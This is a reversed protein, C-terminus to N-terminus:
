SVMFSPGTACHPRFRLSFRIRTSVSFNSVLSFPMKAMPSMLQYGPLSVSIRDPKWSAARIAWAAWLITCGSLFSRNWYVVEDELRCFFSPTFYARESIAAERPARAHLEHLSAYIGVVQTPIVNRTHRAAEERCGPSPR